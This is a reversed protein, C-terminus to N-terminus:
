SRKTPTGSSLAADAAMVGAIWGVAMAASMCMFFTRRSVLPGGGSTGGNTRVGDGIPPEEDKLVLRHHRPSHISALQANQINVINRYPHYYWLQFNTATGDYWEVLTTDKLFFLLHPIYAEIAFSEGAGYEKKDTGQETLSWVQVKGTVVFDHTRVNHLYGSRMCDKVSHLLNMRQGGIRLRHISGRDDSFVSPIPASAIRGPGESVHSSDLIESSGVSVQDAVIPSVESM